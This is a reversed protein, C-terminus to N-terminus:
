GLHHELTILTTVEAIGSITAVASRATEIEDITAANLRMIIDYEGAISHITSAFGILKLKPVVQACTKGKELRILLHATQQGLANNGEVITFSIVTGNTVLKALREQTASRSLELDRALAVIPRRANRKLLSVLLKDKDDVPVSEISGGLM